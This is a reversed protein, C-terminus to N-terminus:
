TADEDYPVPSPKAESPKKGLDVAGASGNATVKKPAPEDDDDNWAETLAERVIRRPDYQRPDLKQWDIDDFEPGLEERMQAQAGKAFRRASKVLSALQEAYHPLREPGLVVLAVVLLVLFEGGNIGFM